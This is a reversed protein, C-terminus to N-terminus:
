TPCSDVEEGVSELTAAVAGGVTVTSSAELQLVGRGGAPTVRGTQELMVFGGYASASASYTTAAGVRDQTWTGPAPFAPDIWTGGAEFTYCNSLPDPLGIASGGTVEVAFSRGDMGRLRQPGTPAAMATGASAAVLAAGLAPALLRTLKM